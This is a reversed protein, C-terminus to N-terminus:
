FSTPLLNLPQSSWACSDVLPLSPKKDEGVEQTKRGGERGEEKGKEGEKERKKERADSPHHLSLSLAPSQTLLVESRNHSGSPLMGDADPEM